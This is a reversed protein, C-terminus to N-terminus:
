YVHFKKPICVYKGSSASMKFIIDDLLNQFLFFVEKINIKKIFM